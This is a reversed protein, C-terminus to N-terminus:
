RVSFACPTVCLYKPMDTGRRIAVTVTQRWGRVTVGFRRSLTNSGGNKIPGGSGTRRRGKGTHYPWEAGVTRRGGRDTDLIAFIAPNLVM